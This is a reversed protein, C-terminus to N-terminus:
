ADLVRDRRHHIATQAKTGNTTGETQSDGHPFNGRQPGNGASGQAYIERARRVVLEETKAFFNPGEGPSGIAEASEFACRCAMQLFAAALEIRVIVKIPERGEIQAM